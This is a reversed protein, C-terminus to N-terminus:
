EKHYNRKHMLNNGFIIVFFVILMKWGFWMVCMIIETIQAVVEIIWLVLKVKNM